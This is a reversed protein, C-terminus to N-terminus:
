GRAPSGSRTKPCTVRRALSSRGLKELYTRQLPLQSRHAECRVELTRTESKEPLTEPSIIPVFPPAPLDRVPEGATHLSTWAAKVTHPESSPSWHWPARM